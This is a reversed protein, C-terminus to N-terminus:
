GALVRVADHEIEELAEVVAVDLNTADRWGVGRSRWILAARSPPDLDTRIVPPDALAEGFKILLAAFDSEGAALVL